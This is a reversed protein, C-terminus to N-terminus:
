NRIKRYLDYIKTYSWDREGRCGGRGCPTREFAIITCLGPSHCTQCFGWTYYIEKCAPAFLLGKVPEFGPRDPHLFGPGHFVLQPGHTRYAVRFTNKHDETLGVNGWVTVWLNPEVFFQPQLFVENSIKLKTDNKRYPLGCGSLLISHNYRLQSVYGGTPIPEMKGHRFDGVSPGDYEEPM